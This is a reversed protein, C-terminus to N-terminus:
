RLAGERLHHFVNLLLEDLDAVLFVPGIVFQKEVADVEGVIGVHRWVKLIPDDHLGQAAGLLRLSLCVKPLFSRRSQLRLQRRVSVVQLLRRLVREADELFHVWVVQWRICVVEVQLSQLCLSPLYRLLLRLRGPGFKREHVEDVASVLRVEARIKQLEIWCHLHASGVWKM